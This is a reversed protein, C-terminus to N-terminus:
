FLAKIFYFTMIGSAILKLIIGLMVGVFVGWGAKLADLSQKGVMLEGVVAGVFAGIIMGLPPAFILGILMGIIAGWIGFKSAGFKRAGAAPVVYDLVTVAITLAAMILLFTPSFPEWRKAVSLLILALFSFPPGVIGPIVCGIFGVLLLLFGIIILIVM